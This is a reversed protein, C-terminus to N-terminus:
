SPKRRQTSPPAAKTGRERVSAAMMLGHELAWTAVETRSRVGLKNRIREVHGEASREAIFLQEAIQRNTLGTAVLRAVDLERRTLPGADVETAPESDGLAYDIARDVSMAWGQNWAAQSRNVGLRSRAQRESDEARNRLWPEVQISGESILREAAAALRLARQDDSTAGAVASLGKLCSILMSPNGFRRAVALSEKWSRAAAHHDNMGLQACALTDLYGAVVFSHDVPERSSLLNEVLRDRASAYDGAAVELGGLTNQIAHRLRLNNSGTLLSAAEELTEIAADVQGLWTYAVGTWWLACALAERDELDRALRVSTEGARLAAQYDGQRYALYAITMFAWVRPVGRVPSKDLLQALLRRAEAFDASESHAIDVVLSLGLDDAHDEAWRVAAWLNGSERVKWQAEEVGPAPETLAQPGLWKITKTSLSDRFYEYHRRRVLELEGTEELRDEAFALQSELLRYRSGSGEAREAALMSKQLLGTVADLLSGVSAGACVAQASDLTFGGRFVALRRFLLREEESLLRYSWDITAVMTQQRDPVTRSGGTLLRFRDVLQSLIELETMMVVRAAALEIALPMGDLHEFIQTVVDRNSATVKFDPMVNRARAEFLEIADAGVMPSVIWRREGPVGLAERSTAVVAIEPCRQLAAECFRACAGVLHECNDLVLVARRAALWATVVDLGPGRGPLALAAVVADPVLGPDTVASLDIWWVGGPWLHLCASGLEVALRTKGSGGAGTLTIMRSGALLSKLASLDAKRGVFNTLFHPLNTQRQTLSQIPPFSTPRALSNLQFVHEPRTLDKLRHLGLDELAAGPPIEDALMSETAKTLLVQGPHCTALLRACRNLAAGFYHGDRLQAEGTHMAVRTRLDLGDPWSETAFGEQIDLACAAATAATRFVALVSDGERGTEVLHGSHNRVVDALIRDHEAMASRMAKPQREWARTSGQLDTLM